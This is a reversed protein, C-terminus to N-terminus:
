QAMWYLVTQTVAGNTFELSFTSANVNSVYVTQTITAGTGTWSPSVVVATPTTGLSHTVTLGDTATVSGSRVAGTQTAGGITFSAGSDLQLTGGSQVNWTCGSGAVWSAGGQAQYCAVNQALTPYALAGTILAAAILALLVLSKFTNKNM